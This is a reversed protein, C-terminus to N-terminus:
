YKICALLAINRPRTEEGGVFTTHATNYGITRNAQLAPGGSVDGAPFTHQHSRLMDNQWSGLARNGDIGRGDDFGRVFEGRLDPLNFTTSGDGAGFMTGVATFLDAYQTRLIASGDAKLWGEPASQQALYVVSGVPVGYGASVFDSAHKGDVTDANGGDAEARITIDKTGDFSVGNINRATELKTATAANGTCSSSVDASVVDVSITVDASGDFNTSGTADGKLSIKRANALKEASEATIATAAAVIKDDKLARFNERIDATNDVPLNSNYSM